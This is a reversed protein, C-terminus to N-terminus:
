LGQTLDGLLQQSTPQHACGEKPSKNPTPDL